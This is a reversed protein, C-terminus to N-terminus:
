SVHIELKGSFLCLYIVDEQSNKFSLVIWKEELKSAYTM